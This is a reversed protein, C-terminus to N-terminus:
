ELSIFEEDPQGVVRIAENISTVGQKVLTLVSQTLPQYSKCDLAAKAFGAVDSLRLATIMDNNLELLEYVGTRGTYGHMGCHSCGEADKCQISSPDVHMSKLWALELQDPEHDKKCVRCLNRILRQGIIAKVAAAVMFGEAGMDVLRLASSVADNTHMTALVFHGTVAARMGILATDADRIEGVMIVDPDQRLVARLVRSFSLDIKENVQVQNLRGIRYEVPDEVTIIKREPTNLRTLISYLTTSKGSGTPGTVLLMGYPKNYIAEIRRVMSKDFGLRSLDAIATSQKLLRMVLSEGNVTPVTSLRVDYAQGKLDFSFSGDLPIRHESIDLNARLKLRQILAATIRKENFIYENLVGDIRFRIRLTKQDPEIHIDSAGAQVADRFLSNLLKVVPARQEEVEMTEDFLHDRSIVLEDGMESSLEKAFNSIENTRRYLRDFMSLLLTESILATKIERKLIKSIADVANIDMPDVMGVLLTGGPQQEELIIASYEKAHMEPLLKVILPDIEQFLLDVFPLNRQKSLLKLVDEEAIVNMKILIQGLREGSKKQLEIAQDLQKQNILGAELLLEGIRKHRM